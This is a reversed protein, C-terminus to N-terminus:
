IHILSLDVVQQHGVLSVSKRGLVAVHAGNDLERLVEMATNHVNAARVHDDLEAGLRIAAVCEDLKDLWETNDLTRARTSHHHRASRDLTVFFGLRFVSGARHVRTEQGGSLYARRYNHLIICVHKHLKHREDREYLRCQPVRIRSELQILQPKIIRLYGHCRRIRRRESHSVFTGVQCDATRQAEAGIAQPRARAYSSVLLVRPAYM